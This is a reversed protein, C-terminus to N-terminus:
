LIHRFTKAPGDLSLGMTEAYNIITALSIMQSGVHVFLAIVGLMLAPYQFISKKDKNGVASSKNAVKTDLEPLISYRVIIGFIFLLMALIAYPLMVSRILTDLATDLAEGSFVGGKIQQM